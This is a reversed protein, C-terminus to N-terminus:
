FIPLSEKICKINLKWTDNLFCIRMKSSEPEWTLCYYFIAALSFEKLIEVVSCANEKLSDHDALILFARLSSEIM